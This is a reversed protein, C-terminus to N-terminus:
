PSLPTSGTTAPKIRSTMMKWTWSETKRDAPLKVLRNTCPETNTSRPMASTQTRMRPSISRDM